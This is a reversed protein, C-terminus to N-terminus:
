PSWGLIASGCRWQWHIPVRVPMTAILKEEVAFRLTARLNKLEGNIISRAVVGM